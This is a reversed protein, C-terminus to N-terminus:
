AGCPRTPEAAALWADTKALTEESVQVSPYLGVVIQQAIEHSRADWIDKVM